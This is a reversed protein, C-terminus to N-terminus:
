PHAAKYADFEQKLEQIAKILMPVFVSYKVSKTTTGLDIENNADDFEIDKNEDVLGPFVTELEQAVVGLLKAKSKDGKLNYNVVRVQCLQDLKSTADVINEKLKSDSIAGYSNNLNQVNGTSLVKFVNQTSDKGIILENGGTPVKLITAVNSGTAAVTWICGSTIAGVGNAVLNDFIQTGKLQVVNTSYDQFTGITPAGIVKNTALYMVNGYINGYFGTVASSIDIATTLESFQNNAITVGDFGSTASHIYVGVAGSGIFNTDITAGRLSGKINLWSGTLNADGHYNAKYTLAQIEGDTELAGAGGGSLTEFTCGQINWVQCFGTSTYIPALVVLYFTTNLISIANAYTGNNVISRSGGVFTCNQILSIISQTINITSATNQTTFQCDRFTIYAADFATSHSFDFVFSTFATSTQNFNLKEFCLGQASRGDIIRAGSTAALKIISAKPGSALTSQGLLTINRVNNLDLTTNILYTGVPFYVVGGTAKVSDIAAQVADRDNTVGDGVAGFDMVNAPAGTIMSFSAKTLSM